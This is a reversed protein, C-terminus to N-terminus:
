AASDSLARRSHPSWQALSFPPCAACVAPLSWNIVNLRSNQSIQNTPGPRNEAVSNFKMPTQGCRCDSYTYSNRPIPFALHFLQSAGMIVHKSGHQLGNSAQTQPTAGEVFGKGPRASALATLYLLNTVHRLRCRGLRGTYSRSMAASIRSKRISFSM